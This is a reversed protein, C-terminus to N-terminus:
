SALQLLPFQPLLHSVDYPLEVRNLFLDLVHLSVKSGCTNSNFIIFHINFFLSHNIFRFSYLLLCTPFYKDVLRYRSKKVAM